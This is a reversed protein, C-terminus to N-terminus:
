EVDASAAALHRVFWSSALEAVRELAGPEEFLHTAGEVQELRWKGALREAAVRNLGLVQRDRSGVILLTPTRVLHLADGALDPRGGRSVIGAVRDPQSAAAILAAAAGTSAGFLGLALSALDSQTAAWDITRHLRRALLEIDFRWRADTRDDAEEEMTLLDVLLTALGAHQLREAVFRNRVSLRSSGSGHAFVVLGGAGEPVVLDGDIARGPGVRVQVGRSSWM